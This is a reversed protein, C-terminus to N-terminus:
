TFPNRSSFDPQYHQSSDMHQVWGRMELENFVAVVEQYEEAHLTRNLNSDLQVNSPPFYQSMLSVHIKPSIETSIFRLVNMSDDVSGPLVLHRIILGWEAEGDDNVVLSAGKQRYMERIAGTAVEFYNRVHSYRLALENSFYKFDPLYIDVVDELQKLTEVSDYGNSNYVIRPSYGRQQLQEIIILMQYVQHSPSVFGVAGVGTDLIAAISDVIEPYSSLWDEGSAENRSIQHNQCFVCNMNCRAFFVNCIGGRGSIVPEEGRHLCVTAVLPEIGCGCLGMGTYRNVGCARPCLKCSKMAAPAIEVNGM